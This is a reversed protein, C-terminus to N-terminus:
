IFFNKYFFFTQVEPSEEIKELNSKTEVIEKQKKEITEDKFNSKPLNESDINEKLSSKLFDSPLSYRKNHIINKQNIKNISDVNEKNERDFMESKRSYM